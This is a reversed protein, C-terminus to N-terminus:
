ESPVLKCGLLGRGTWQRPTLHLDLIGEGNRYVVVKIPINRCAGVVDQLAKGLGPKAQNRKLISGFQLIKDGICLGAEKAPSHEEVHECLYFADLPTLAVSLAQGSPLLPLTEQSTAKPPAQGGKSGQSSAQSKGESTQGPKATQSHLAHLSAEIQNMVSVHDNQLRALQSRTIREAHVDIDSRPFGDEDVLSGPKSIATLTQIQTELSDKKLMLEMLRTRVETLVPPSTHEKDCTSMPSFPSPTHLGCFRTDPVAVDWCGFDRCYDM